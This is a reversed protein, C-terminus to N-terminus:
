GTGPRGSALRRYAALAADVADEESPLTRAQKIAAESLRAALGPDDLVSLIAAALARADGPPVLLAADKGTLDPIGGVRSAVLPRGARLAEQAILPQGEWASPLVVVDAAALLAPVDGRQGLFRIAAGSAAARRALDSHLPGSGAIVLLPAPDRDRWHVAAEVLTGLGKQRALRAVTLIVAARAPGGAVGLEARIGALTRAPVDPAAPAPVLARAVGRAGLRRMRAQLDSSVCLVADARRAVIRELVGYVAAAPGGGPPANHVTVLLAPRARDGPASRGAGHRGAGDRGANRRANGRGLALAALAGARLGHAHVVDPRSRSLLGRLRWIAALDRSPRPRAAIDVEAFVPPGCGGGPEAPTRAAVGPGGEQSLGSATGARAEAFAGGGTGVTEAPAGAPAGAGAGPSLGAGTGARAEASAGGGTGAREAPAGAPAEAASGSGDGTWTQAPGYVSVTVGRAALGGALMRVHRATGGASTGLVYAVRM